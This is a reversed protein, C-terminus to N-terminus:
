LKKKKRLEDPVTIMDAPERREFLSLIAAYIEGHADKYFHVPSLFAAVRIIADKDILLAGIVSQEADLNQPPLRDSM